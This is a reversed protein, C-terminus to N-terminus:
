VSVCSSPVLTDLVHLIYKQSLFTFLQTKTSKLFSNLIHKRKLLGFDVYLCTPVSQADGVLPFARECSLRGRRAQPVQNLDFDDTGHKIVSPVFAKKKENAANSQLEYLTCLNFM